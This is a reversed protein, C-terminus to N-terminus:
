DLILQIIPILPTTNNQEPDTGALFEALNTLGDGDLDKLADTPDLPDLHYQLEWEDTINDNDDDSDIFNAILDGDTDPSNSVSQTTFNGVEDYSYQQVPGETRTVTKLRNLDDYRYNIEVASFVPLAYLFLLFVLFTLKLYKTILAQLWHYIRQSHIHPQPSQPVLHNIQYVLNM